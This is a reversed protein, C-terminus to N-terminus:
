QPKSSVVYLQISLRSDFPDGLSCAPSVSTYSVIQTILTHLMEPGKDLLDIFRIHIWCDCTIADAGSPLIIIQALPHQQSIAKIHRLNDIILMPKSVANPLDSM